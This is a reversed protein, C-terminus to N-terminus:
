KRAPQAPAAPAQLVQVFVNDPASTIAARITTAGGPLTIVGGGASAVKVGSSDLRKVSAEVDRVVLRLVASGPDQLRSHVPKRDKGNFELFEIKFSSGPVTTTTRRVETGRVNLLKELNKEKAFAGTKLEFGLADHFVRSMRNADSVVFAFSM